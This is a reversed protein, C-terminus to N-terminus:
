VAPRPLCAELVGQPLPAQTSSLSYLEDTAKACKNTLSFLQSVDEIDHTALKELM